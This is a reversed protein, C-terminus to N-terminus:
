RVATLASPNLFVFDDDSSAVALFHRPSEPSVNQATILMRCRPVTRPCPRVVLLCASPWYWIFLRSAWARDETPGHISHDAVDADSRVVYLTFRFHVGGFSAALDPARPHPTTLASLRCLHMCAHWREAGDLELLGPFVLLDQAPDATLAARFVGTNHTRVTAAPEDADHALDDAVSIRSPADIFDEEASFALSM